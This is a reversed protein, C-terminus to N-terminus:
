QRRRRMFTMVGGVLGLAAMASPEPVSTPEVDSVHVVMDNFDHDTNGGRWLDEFAVIFDTQLFPREGLKPLDISTSGDGQYIVSQQYGENLSAESYFTNSDNELYFGFTSGFNNVTKGDVTIDGNNTNFNLNSLEGKKNSGSFLSVKKESNGKKYIGFENQNSLGAIEFMLNATSGSDVHTFLEYGTQDEKTDIDGPNTTVNDLHSQLSNEDSPKDWSDGFSVSAASAPQAGALVGGALVTTVGTMLVMKNTPNLINRFTTM